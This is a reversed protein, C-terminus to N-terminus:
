GPVETGPLPPLPLLYFLTLGTLSPHIPFSFIIFMHKPIFPDATGVPSPNKGWIIGEGASFHRALIM